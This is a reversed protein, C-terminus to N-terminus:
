DDDRNMRRRIRQREAEWEAHQQLEKRWSQIWKEAAERTKFYEIMLEGHHKTPAAAGFGTPTKWIEGMRRKQKDQSIQAKHKAIENRKKRRQLAQKYREKRGINREIKRALRKVGRKIFRPTLASVAKAVPVIVTTPDGIPIGSPLSAENLSDIEEKFQKYTKM